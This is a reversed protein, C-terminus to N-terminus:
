VLATRPRIEKHPIVRVRFIEVDAIFWDNPLLAAVYVWPVTSSEENFCIARCM